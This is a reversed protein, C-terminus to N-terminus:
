PATLRQMLGTDLKFPYYDVKQVYGNLIFWGGNSSGIRLNNMVPVAPTGHTSLLGSAAAYFDSANYSVASRYSKGPTCAYGSGYGFVMSGGNFVEINEGDDINDSVFMQIGNNSSGDDLAVSAPYSTGGLYPIMSQQVITGTANNYWSATPITLSDAGRTVTATTTPIYSTPFKGIETQAGWFYAAEGASASGPSDIYIVGFANTGGSAGAFTRTASLRYWGNGVNKISSTTGSPTSQVTGNGTLVYATYSLANAVKHEFLIYTGDVPKVYVSRTVTQGASWTADQYFYAFNGGNASIKDATTTGDPAVANDATVSVAGKGWAANNMAQTQLLLNTRSEEILLGRAVHTNPDYDLRPTNIAASQMIGASNFYTATTTRTFSAGAGTIFSAIGSYNAGMLRYKDAAFDMSLTPPLGNTQQWTKGDCYQLLGFASNFMLDGTTGSPSTCAGTYTGTGNLKGWASWEQGNCHQMVRYASNFLIDGATGSPSTCGAGGKAKDGVQAWSYGNCFQVVKSANNFLLDGSTGAPSACDAWALPTLIVTGLVTLIVFPICLM